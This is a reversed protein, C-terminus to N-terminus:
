SEARNLLMVIFIGGISSLITTMSVLVISM